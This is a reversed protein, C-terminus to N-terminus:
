IILTKYNKKKKQYYLHHYKIIFAENKSWKLYKSSSDNSLLMVFLNYGCM